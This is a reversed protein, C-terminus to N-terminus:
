RRGTKVDAADEESFKKTMIPSSPPEVSLRSEAVNSITSKEANHQTEASTPDAPVVDPSLDNLNAPDAQAPTTPM